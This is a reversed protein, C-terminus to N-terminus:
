MSLFLTRQLTCQKNRELCTRSPVRESICHKGLCVFLFVNLLGNVKKGGGLVANKVLEAHHIIHQINNGNQAEQLKQLCRMTPECHKSDSRPKEQLPLPFFVNLFHVINLSVLQIQTSFQASQNRSAEIIQRCKIM